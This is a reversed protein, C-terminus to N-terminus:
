LVRWDDAFIDEWTPIYYTASADVAPDDIMDVIIVQDHYSIAGSGVTSLYGKLSKQLSTMRPVVDAPITAPIQMMVAKNGSWANRQYIHGEKLGDIIEAFKM